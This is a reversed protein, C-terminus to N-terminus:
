CSGRTRAGTLTLKHDVSDYSASTLFLDAITVKKPEGEKPTFTIVTGANDDSRSASVDVIAGKYGELATDIAEVVAGSTPFKPIGM